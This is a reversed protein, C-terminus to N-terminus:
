SEANFEERLMQETLGFNAEAKEWFPGWHNVLVEVQDDGSRLARYGSAGPMRVRHGPRPKTAKVTRVFEDSREKVADIPGFHSPDIALFFSGGVSPYDQQEAFGSIRSINPSSRGIPNIISTLGEMFLNMVYTRPTEILGACTYDSVRGLGEIQTFYPRPDDSLEGTEPDILWKGKMRKGQLYATAVDGDYFEGLKTSMWIPEEEGSPIIGDWPPVGLVNEMGGFPAALPPSNNSALAAMDREHALWTYAAYSGADNHNAGLVFAVGTTAAKEIAIQAMRTLTFQGSSRKGDVVAWSSDESVITPEAEIDLNGTMLCLLPAEFVGLGQTLKGQRHGFGIARSMAAAHEESAGAARWYRGVIYEIFAASETLTEADDHSM